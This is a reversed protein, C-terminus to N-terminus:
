AMGPVPNFEVSKRQAHASLAEAGHGTVSYVPRPKGSTYPEPSIKSTVYGKGCMRNLTVYISGRKLVGGSERVMELGYMEGKAVLMELIFLELRSLRTM